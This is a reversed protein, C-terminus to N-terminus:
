HVTVHGLGVSYPGFRDYIRGIAGFRTSYTFAFRYANPAARAFNVVFLRGIVAGAWLLLVLRIIPYGWRRSLLRSRLRAAGNLFIVCDGRLRRSRVFASVLRARKLCIVFWFWWRDQYSDGRTCEVGNRFARLM